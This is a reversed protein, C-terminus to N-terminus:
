SWQPADERRGEVVKTKGKFEWWRIPGSSAWPWLINTVKGQVLNIPIPGYYNSDLSRRGDRNDGEVWVHGAPIEAKPSPCPARPYVVDGEVAIIRKIALVEPHSPSWFSVLMGRQLNQGPSWKNVWCLDKSRGENYSTNLYPYMSAGSIKAVQGVNENFFVLAPIWSAFILLNYGSKRMFPKSQSLRQLLPNLRSM